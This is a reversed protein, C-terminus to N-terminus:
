RPAVPAVDPMAFPRFTPQGYLRALIEQFDEYVQWADGARRSPAPLLCARLLAAIPRPVTSALSGAGPSGGLLRLMCRAAMYVDTAATVPQRAPAEPPYDVAYPPSIAKLAEGAPVSYCWDILMASHDAPRILVHAPTVAGHVIGLNHIVGLAALLRNFMWAADAADIGDPYAHQVDALSVCGDAARLVNVQRTLGATDRLQFYEILSPFHARVPQDALARELGRLTRAEAQLLDNNRSSRAVKLLARGDAVDCPFLECLDGQLPPEYGTYAHLGTVAAIYEVRGYTGQQLRRQATTHWAQLERFAKNAHAVRGQNHDPHAIAALERYRRKLAAQRDGHLAGFVQEPQTAQRLCDVLETLSPKM